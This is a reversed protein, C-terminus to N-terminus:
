AFIRLLVIRVPQSRRSPYAPDSRILERYPLTGRHFRGSTAFLTIASSSVGPRTQPKELSKTLLRTMRPREHESKPTTPEAPISQSPRGTRPDASISLAFRDSAGAVSALPLRRPRAGSM